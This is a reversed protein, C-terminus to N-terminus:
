GVRGSSASSSPWRATSITIWCSTSGSSGGAPRDPRHHGLLRVGDMLRAPVPTAWPPCAADRYAQPMRATGRGFLDAALEQRLMPGFRRLYDGPPVRYLAQRAMTTCCSAPM